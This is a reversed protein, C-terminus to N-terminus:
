SILVGHPTFRLVQNVCSPIEGATHSVFIIYTNGSGAILDTLALILHRFEDDLGVCAEDLILISPQKVMARALLM